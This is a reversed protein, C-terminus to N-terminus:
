DVFISTDDGVEFPPAVGGEPGGPEHATLEARLAPTDIYGIVGEATLCWTSAVEDEVPVSVCRLEIGAAEREGFTPEEVETRQGLTTMAQVPGTTAFGSFLGYAALRDERLGEVCAEASVRCTAEVRGTVVVYDDVAVSTSPPANRVEVTAETSGLKQLTAYISTHGVELGAEAEAIFAELDPHVPLTQRTAPGGDIPAPTGAPEDSGCGGALLLAAALVIPLRRM